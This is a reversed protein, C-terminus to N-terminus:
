PKHAQTVNSREGLWNSAVIFMPVVVACFRGQSNFTIEYARTVYPIGLLLAALIIEERSLWSRRWGYSVLSVAVVFVIPNAFQLSCAPSVSGFRRWYFWTGPLYTSWLPELSILSVAKDVGGIAPWTSYYQQTRTFALCDGFVVQQYVMYAGLRIM